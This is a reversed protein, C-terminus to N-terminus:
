MDLPWGASDLALARGKLMDWTVPYGGQPMDQRASQASSQGDRQNNAHPSVPVLSSVPAPRSARATKQSITM